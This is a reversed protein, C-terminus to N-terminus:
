NLFENCISYLGNELSIYIINGKLHRTKDNAFLNEYSLLWLELYKKLHTVTVYLEACIENNKM